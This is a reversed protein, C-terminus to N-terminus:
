SRERFPQGVEPIQLLLLFLDQLRDFLLSLQRRFQFLLDFSGHRLDFQLIQVTRVARLSACSRRDRPLFAQLRQCQDDQLLRDIMREFLIRRTENRFLLANSGCLFRDGACRIDQRLDNGVIRSETRVDTLQDASLSQDGGFRLILVFLGDILRIIMKGFRNRLDLSVPHKREVASLILLDQGHLQLHRFFVDQVVHLAPKQLVIVLKGRRNQPRDDFVAIFTQDARSNLALDSVLQRFFRFVARDIHKLLVKPLKQQLRRDGSVRHEAPIGAVPVAALKRNDIRRSLNQIGRDDIRSSRRRRLSNCGGLLGDFLQDFLVM